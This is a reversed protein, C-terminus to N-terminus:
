LHKFKWYINFAETIMVQKRFSLNESDVKKEMLQGLTTKHKPKVYKFLTDNTYGLFKAIDKVLFVPKDWTGLITHRIPITWILYQGWVM